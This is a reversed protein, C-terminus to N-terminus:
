SKKKFLKSEKKIEFVKQFFDLSKNNIYYDINLKFTNDIIDITNEKIFEIEKEKTKYLYLLLFDFFLFILFLATLIM